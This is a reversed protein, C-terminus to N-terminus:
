LGVSAGGGGSTTTTVTPAALAYKSLTELAAQWSSGVAGQVGEASKSALQALLKARAPASLGGTSAIQASMKSQNVDAQNKAFGYLPSAGMNGGYVQKLPSVFDNVYGEQGPLYNLQSSVTTGSQSSYAM